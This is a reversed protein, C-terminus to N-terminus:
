SSISLAGFSIQSLTFSDLVSDKFIIISIIFDYVMLIMTCILRITVSGSSSEILTMSSTISRLNEELKFDDSLTIQQIDNHWIVQASKVEMISLEQTVHVCLSLNLCLVGSLSLVASSILFYNMLYIGWDNIVSQYINLTVVALSSIFLLIQFYHFPNIKLNKFNNDKILLTLDMIMIILHFYFESFILYDEKTPHSIVVLYVQILLNVVLGLITLSSITLTIKDISLIDIL